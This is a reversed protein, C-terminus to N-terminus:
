LKVLYFPVNKGDDHTRYNARSFLEGRENHFTPRPQRVNPFKWPLALRQIRQASPQRMGYAKVEQDPEPSKITIATGRKQEMKM